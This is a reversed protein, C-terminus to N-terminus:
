DAAFAAFAEVVQRYVDRKWPIVLGTIESLDAWRWDDFEVEGHQDLQFDQDTGLYRYAFWRQKQGDYRTKHFKSQKRIADPYDYAIWDAIQGLSSVLHPGIGTEEELERLAAREPSEGDDIGGQPLQWQWPPSAEERRGLWIKGEANFLAIGVNPRHNPYPDPCTESV